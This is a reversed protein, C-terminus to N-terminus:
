SATARVARFIVSEDSRIERKVEFSVHTAKESAQTPRPVRIAVREVAKHAEANFNRIPVSEFNDYRYLCYEVDYELQPLTITLTLSAALPRQNSDEEIAPEESPVHTQVRIPVCYHEPDIV